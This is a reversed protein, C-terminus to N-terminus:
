FSDEPKKKNRIDIRQRQFVIKVISDRADDKISVIRAANIFVDNDKAVRLIEAILEMNYQIIGPMVLEMKLLTGKSLKEFSTFKLGSASIEIVNDHGPLNEMSRFILEEIIFDLKNNLLKLTLYLQEDKSGPTAEDLFNDIPSPVGGQKFLSDGMGNKVIQIEENNLIKWKVPVVMEVRFHDRRNDKKM